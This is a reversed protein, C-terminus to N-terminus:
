AVKLALATPQGPMAVDPLAFSQWLAHMVFAMQGCGLRSSEAFQLRRPARESQPSSSSPKLPNGTKGSLFASTIAHNLLLLIVRSHRSVRGM